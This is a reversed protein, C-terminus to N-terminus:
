GPINAGNSGTTGATGNPQANGGNTGNGGTGLVGALNGGRHLNRAMHTGMAGLGIMGIKM